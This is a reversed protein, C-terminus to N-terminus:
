NNKLQAPHCKKRDRASLIRGILYELCFPFKVYTLSSPKQKRSTSFELRLNCYIRPSIPYRADSVFLYRPRIIIEVVTYNNFNVNLRLLAKRNKFVSPTRSLLVLKTTEIM